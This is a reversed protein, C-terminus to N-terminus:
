KTGYAFSEEKNPFELCNQRLKSISFDNTKTNEAPEAPNKDLAFNNLFRRFFNVESLFINLFM